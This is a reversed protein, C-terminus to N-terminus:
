HGSSMQLNDFLKMIKVFILPEGAMRRQNVTWVERSLRTEMACSVRGFINWAITYMSPNSTRLLTDKAVLLSNTSLGASGMRDYLILKLTQLPFSINIPKTSVLCHLQHYISIVWALSSNDSPGPMGPPLLYQGNNEIHM